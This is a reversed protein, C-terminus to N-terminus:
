TESRGGGGGGALGTKRKRNEQIHALLRVGKGGCRPAVGAAMVEESHHQVTDEPPSDFGALQEENPTQECCLSFYGLACPQEKGVKLPSCHIEKNIAAEGLTGTIAINFM